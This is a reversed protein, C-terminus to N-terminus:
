YKALQHAGCVTEFSLLNFGNDVIAEFQMECKNEFALETKRIWKAASSTFDYFPTNLFFFWVTAKQYWRTKESTFDISLRGHCYSCIVSKSELAWPSLYLFPTKKIAM